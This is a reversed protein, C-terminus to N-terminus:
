LESSSRAGGLSSTAPRLFFYDRSFCLPKTRWCDPSATPRMRGMRGAEMAMGSGPLVEPYASNFQDSRARAMMPSSKASYLLPATLNARCKKWARWGRLDEEGYLGRDPGGTRDCCAAVQGCAIAMAQEFAHPREPERSPQAKPGGCRWFCCNCHRNAVAWRTIVLSSSTIVFPGIVFSSHFGLSL